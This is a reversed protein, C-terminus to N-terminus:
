SGMFRDLQEQTMAAIAREYAPGALNRMHAFEDENTTAEAAPPMRSLSPPVGSLDPARSPAAPKQEDSAPVGATKFSAKVAKHAERLFWEGPKAAHKPDSALARVEADLAGGLARNAQYDIGDTAKAEKMFRKCEWEWEQQATQQARATDAEHTRQQYRLDAIDNGTREEIDAYDEPTIEGDMLRKLADRKETQLAKIKGDYDDVAPVVM